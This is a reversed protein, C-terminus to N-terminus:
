AEQPEQRSMVRQYFMGIGLLVLGLAIFSAARAVGTLHSMDVLFAKLTVGIMVAFATIRVSRIEARLGFLLVAIAYLLWVLTYTWLEPETIAALRLSNGQFAQTVSFTVFAFSGAIALAGAILGLNQRDPVPRWRMSMALAFAIAAPVLYSLALLNLVPLRGVEHTAVFPNAILAPGLLAAGAFILGILVPLLAGLGTSRYIRLTTFAASLSLAAFVGYDTPAQLPAYANGFVLWRITIVVASLLLAGASATMAVTSLPPREGGGDGLRLWSRWLTEGTQFEEPPMRARLLMLALGIAMGPVATNVLLPGLDTGARQGWRLFTRLGDVGCYALVAVCIAAAVPVLAAARWHVALVAAALTLLSLAVVLTPGSLLMMPAFGILGLAGTAALVSAFERHPPLRGGRPWAATLLVTGQVLALAALMRRDVDEFSKLVLDGGILVGVTSVIGLIATTQSIRTMRHVAAIALALTVASVGAFLHVVHEFTLGIVPMGFRAYGHGDPASGAVMALATVLGLAAVPAIRRVGPMLVSAALALVIFTIGAITPVPRYVVPAPVAVAMGAVILAVTVLPATEAHRERAFAERGGLRLVSVAMGGLAAAAAVVTAHLPDGLRLFLVWATLVGAIMIDLWAWGRRWAVAYTALGVGGIYCATAIDAHGRVLLPVSQAALYGFVALPPGYHLSVAVGSLAVAAMMLFAPAAAIFGYVAHAAFITAFLGAAGAGFLTSPIDPMGKPLTSLRAFVGRRRLVEAGGMLALSFLAAAMLRAAPPFYGEMISHRVLLISGLAVAGGGILVAWRRGFSLEFDRTATLAPGLPPVATRPRDRVPDDLVGAHADPVGAHADSLDASPSPVTAEAVSVSESTDSVLPPTEADVEVTARPDHAADQALDTTPAPEAVFPPVGSSRQAPATAAQGDVASDFAMGTPPAAATAGSAAAVPSSRALNFSGALAQEFLAFRHDLAALRTGIKSARVLLAILLTLIVLEIILM